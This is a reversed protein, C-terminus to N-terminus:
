SSKLIKRLMNTKKPPLKAVWRHTICHLCFYEANALIFAQKRKLLSFYKFNEDTQEWNEQLQFWIDFIIANVIHNQM